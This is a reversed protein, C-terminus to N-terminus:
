GPWQSVSQLCRQNFNYDHLAGLTAFLSRCSLTAQLPYGDNRHEKGALIRFIQQGQEPHGGKDPFVASRADGPLPSAGRLDRRSGPASVGAQVPIAQVPITQSPVFIVTTSSRAPGQSGEVLEPVVRRCCKSLAEFLEAHLEPYTIKM